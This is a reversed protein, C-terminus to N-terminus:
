LTDIGELRRGTLALYTGIEGDLRSLFFSSGSNLFAGLAIEPIAFITKETAIRFPGHAFLGLAGGV